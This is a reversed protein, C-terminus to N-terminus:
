IRPPDPKSWDIVEGDPAQRPELPRRYFLAAWVTGLLTVVLLAAASVPSAFPTGRLWQVGAVIVAIWASFLVAPVVVFARGYDQLTRRPRRRWPVPAVQTMSGREHKAV